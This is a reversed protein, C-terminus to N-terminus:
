SEDDALKVLVDGHCAKPSCYCGLVKGAIESKVLSLLEPQTKIWEEYKEIVETRTGDKGIHFTNGWKSPRGIFIQFPEKAYHVVETCSM